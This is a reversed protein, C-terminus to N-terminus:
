DNNHTRGLGCHFCGYSPVKPINREDMYKEVVPKISQLGQAYNSDDDKVCRERWPAKNCFTENFVHPLRVPSVEKGSKIDNYISALEYHNIDYARNLHVGNPGNVFSKKRVGMVPDNYVWYVGAALGGYAMTILSSAIPNQKFHKIFNKLANM